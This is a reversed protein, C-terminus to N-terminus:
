STHNKDYWWEISKVMDEFSKLGLSQKFSNIGFTCWVVNDKIYGNEPEIRDLSPGNWSQSGGEKMSNNMPINSYFCRGDQMYWLEILYETTLDFQINRDIARKKITSLRRKIYFEIDGNNIANKFRHLRLKNCKIVSKESKYCERCEKSVGGSLSRNKNFLSLDKWQKCKYCRKSNEVVIPCKHKAYSNRYERHINSNCNNCTVVIKSHSGKHLDEINYGFTELTLEENLTVDSLM